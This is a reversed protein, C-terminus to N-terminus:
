NRVIYKRSEPDYLGSFDPYYYMLSTKRLIKPGEAAGPRYVFGKDLPFGVFLIQGDNIKNM